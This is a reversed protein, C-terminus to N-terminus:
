TTRRSGDIEHNGGVARAAACALACDRLYIPTSRASRVTAFRGAMLTERLEIIMAEVSLETEGGM